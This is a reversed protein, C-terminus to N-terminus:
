LISQPDNTVTLVVHGYYQYPSRIIPLLVPNIVCKCLSYHASLWVYVHGCIPFGIVKSLETQAYKLEEVTGM